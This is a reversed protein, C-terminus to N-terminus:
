LLAGDRNGPPFASQGQPAKGFGPNLEEERSVEYHRVLEMRKNLPHWEYFERMFCRAEVDGTIADIYKIEVIKNHPARSM